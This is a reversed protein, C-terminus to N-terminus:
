LVRANANDSLTAMARVGDLISRAKQVADASAMEGRATAVVQGASEGVDLVISRLGLQLVKSRVSKQMAGIMDDGITVFVFVGPRSGAALKSSGALSAAKGSLTRISRELGEVSDSLVLTDGYIACVGGHGHHSDAPLTYAPFGDVAPAPKVPLTAILHGLS